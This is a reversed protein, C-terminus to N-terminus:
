KVILVPCKTKQSVGNAVSGLLLKDFGTRGHSGIVVLDHKKSKAFTVINNVASGSTLIKSKISINNKEALSELKEFHRKVVKSQKKIQQPSPRAEYYLHHSADLELCTLITIKSNRKKAIDLAVKFARTSQDSLDVPVLINQFLM